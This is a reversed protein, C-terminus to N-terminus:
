VYSNVQDGALVNLMRLVELGSAMLTFNTSMAVFSCSVRQAAFDESCRFIRIGGAAAVLALEGGIVNESLM